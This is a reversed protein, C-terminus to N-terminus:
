RVEVVSSQVRMPLMQGTPVRFFSQQENLTLPSQGAAKVSFVILCLQGRAPAGGSGQPKDMQINLVGGEATFQLDTAAGNGGTRLLGSDRVGKVELINSDYSLSIHTSSIENSGNLIVAVYLDQGKTAIPTAPRVSVMLPNLQQQNTQNVPEDDDDDDDDDDLQDNSHAQPNVQGNNQQNSQPNPKNNSLPAGPRDVQMRQINPKPAGQTVPVPQV